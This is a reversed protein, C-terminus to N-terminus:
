SPSTRRTRFVSGAAWISAASTIAKPACSAAASPRDPQEDVRPALRVVRGVRVGPARRAARDIRNFAVSTKGHSTRYSLGRTDPLFNIPEITLAFKGEDIEVKNWEHLIGADPKLADDIEVSFPLVEYEVESDQLLQLNSPM